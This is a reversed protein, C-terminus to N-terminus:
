KVQLHAIWLVVVFLSRLCFIPATATPSPMGPTKAPTARRDLFFVVTIMLFSLGFIGDLRERFVFLLL